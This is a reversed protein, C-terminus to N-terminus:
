KVNKVLANLQMIQKKTSFHYRLNKKINYLINKFKFLTIKKDFIIFKFDIICKKKLFNKYNFMQNKAVPKCISPINYFSREYLSIGCAGFCLFTKAYYNNLRNSYRILSINKLKYKHLLDVNFKKDIILIKYKLHLNLKHIFNISTLIDKKSEHTGFNIMIYKKSKKQFNGTFPFLLQSTYIKSNPNKKIHDGRKRLFTHDILYKSNIKEIYDATSIINSSLKKLLKIRKINYSDIFFFNNEFSLKEVFKKLDKYFIIKKNKKNSFFSASSKNKEILFFIKFKKKFFKSFQLCRNYHGFGSKSNLDPIFFLSKKKKLM